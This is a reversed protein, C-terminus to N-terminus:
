LLLQEVQPTPFTVRSLCVPLSDRLSPLLESLMCTQTSLRKLRTWSKAVEHVTTQWARGDMPNKLCSYQLPNGHAGELLDKQGLSQVQTKGKAPPNKVVPDGPFGM